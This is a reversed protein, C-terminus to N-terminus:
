NGLTRLFAGERMDLSPIRNRNVLGLTLTISMINTQVSDGMSKKGSPNKPGSPNNSSAKTVKFM